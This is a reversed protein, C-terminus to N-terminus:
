FWIWIQSARRQTRVEDTSSEVKMGESQPTLRLNKKSVPGSTKRAATSKETPNPTAKMENDIM